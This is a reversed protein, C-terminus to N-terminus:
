KTVGPFGAAKLLWELQSRDLAHGDRNRHVTVIRSRYRGTRDKTRFALGSKAEVFEVSYSPAMNKLRRVLGTRFQPTEPRLVKSMM